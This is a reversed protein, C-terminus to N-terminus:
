DKLSVQVERWKGVITPINYVSIFQKIYGDSWEGFNKYDSPVISSPVPGISNDIFNIINSILESRTLEKYTNTISIEM